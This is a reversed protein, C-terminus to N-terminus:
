TAATTNVVHLHGDGTLHYIAGGLSRAENEAFLSRRITTTIAPSSLTGPLDALAGGRNASNGEFASEGITLGGFNERLLAGGDQAATNSDFTSLTITSESGYGVAVGGGSVTAHNGEFATADITLTGALASIAGGTAAANEVLTTNVQFTLDSASGYVAGGRHGDATNAELVSANGVLLTGSQLWIAGGDGGRAQNDSVTSATVVLATNLGAIAGGNSAHNGAIESRRVTVSGGEGMIAGGDATAQNDTLESDRVTVSGGASFIAGGDNAASAGSIKANDLIVVGQAGVRIAGGDNDAGNVLSLCSLTVTAPQANGIDFHRGQGNADIRIRSPCTAATITLDKNVVVDHAAVPGSQILITDGRDAMQVAHALPCPFATCDNPIKGPLTTWFPPGVLREVGQAAAPVALVGILAASGLLHTWSRADATRYVHPRGRGNTQSHNSLM